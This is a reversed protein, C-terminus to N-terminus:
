FDIDDVIMEGLWLSTLHTDFEGCPNWIERGEEAQECEM